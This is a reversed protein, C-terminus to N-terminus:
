APGRSLVGVRGLGLIEDGAGPDSVPRWLQLPVLGPELLDFGKFLGKIETGTRAVLAAPACSGKPLKGTLRSIATAAWTSGAPM